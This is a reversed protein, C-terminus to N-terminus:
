AAHRMPVVRNMRRQVFEIPAAAVIKQDFQPPAHYCILTAKGDPQVTIQRLLVRGDAMEVVCEQGHMLALDFESRDLARHLVVDGNRYAPYLDDGCVVHAVMDAPDPLTVTQAQKETRIMAEIKGEAGIRGVIRVRPISHLQEGYLLTGAPLKFIRAYMRAVDASVQRRGNEHHSYTTQNLGHARAFGIASPWGAEIRARRLRNAVDNQHAQMM